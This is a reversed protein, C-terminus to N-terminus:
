EKVVPAIIMWQDPPSPREPQIALFERNGQHFKGFRLYQKPYDKKLRALAQKVIDLSFMSYEEKNLIFRKISKRSIYGQPILEEVQFNGIAQVAGIRYGYAEGSM